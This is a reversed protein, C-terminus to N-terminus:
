RLPVMWRRWFPLRLRALEARPEDVVRGAAKRKAGARVADLAAAGPVTTTM